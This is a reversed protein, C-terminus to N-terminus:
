KTARITGSSNMCYLGLKELLGELRRSPVAQSLAQSFKRKEKYRGFQEVNQDYNSLEGKFAKLTVVCFLHGLTVM